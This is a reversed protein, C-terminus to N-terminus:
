WEYLLPFNQANVNWSMLGNISIERESFKTDWIRFIYSIEYKLFAIFIM